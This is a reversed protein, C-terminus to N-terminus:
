LHRSGNRSCAPHALWCSYEVMARRDLFATVVVLGATSNQFLRKLEARRKPNVPGHSTVAEVLVLWNEATHQLIVDPMKGHAEIAIGLAALVREDFYAFEEDTDGVYLLRGGPRFRPAVQEIIDPV